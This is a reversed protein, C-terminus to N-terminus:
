QVFPNANVIASECHHPPAEALWQDLSGINVAGFSSFPRLYVANGDSMLRNVSNFYFREWGRRGRITQGGSPSLLRPCAQEVAAFARDVRKTQADGEAVLDASRGPRVGCVLLQNTPNRGAVEPAETSFVWNQFHHFRIEVLDCSRDPALQLAYTSLVANV